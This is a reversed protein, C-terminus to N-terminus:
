LCGGCDAQRKKEPAYSLQVEWAGRFSHRGVSVLSVRAAPYRLWTWAQGKFVDQLIKWLKWPFRLPPRAVLMTELHCLFSGLDRIVLQVQVYYLFEM